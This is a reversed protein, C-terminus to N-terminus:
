KGVAFHAIITHGGFIQTTKSKDNKQKIETEVNKKRM